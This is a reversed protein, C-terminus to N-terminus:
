GRTASLLARPRQRALTWAAPAAALVSLGIVIGWGLAIPGLPPRLRLSLGALMRYLEAGAWSAQLGMAAGLVCATLAVVLIEAVVLRALMPGGAGVARLVGMEFRRADIGAVVVNGVGFCAILIAMIAVSSVIRLTNTGIDGITEKIERGSGASLLTGALQDRIRRMAEEDDIDDALDIQIFQVADNGFREILDGRSGFVAHLAQDRFEKGVDFYKSVLDLGPSGVVGVVEFEWDRGNHTVPFSDGVGIGHAVTFERAVLIAGGELLRQKATEPDGDIWELSTMRFFPEVEFGIFTSGVARLARVGFSQTDLNQLTIACTDTVFPLDAIRTRSDEDVGRIAHVFADPFDIAGIWDDLLSRGNTWIATMLGLGAMLSGATFGHRLLTSRLGAVLLRRPVRMIAAVPACVVAGVVAAAPAGLLFYGIFMAPAGLLVYTWYAVQGDPSATMMVAQFVLLSVGAGALLVLARPGLREASSRMAAMPSTSAAKWAPWLAGILGSAVGGAISAVIWLTPIKLGAPLHEAYIISAAWALAVGLPIGIAAGIVGLAGGVFLQAAGVQAKSAGICRTIALERQREAVSTTLGTLIIFAAALFALTSWIALGIQNARVTDGLGSTVRATPEVLVGPPLDSGRLEAYETPDVGERLALDVRLPAGKGPAIRALTDRTVGAQPRTVAMSFPQRPAVGVITLSIPEGFRAVAVTDGLEVALEDVLAPDLVVENDAQVARGAALTPKRIRGEAAPEVGVGLATVAPGGAPPMLPLPAESRPSAAVVESWARVIDIVSEDFREDGVDRVRLDAAGITAAVRDEITATVSAMACAVAVILAASLGVAGALLGTRLRRALLSSIALRWAARM